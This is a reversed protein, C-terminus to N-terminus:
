RYKDYKEGVHHMFPKLRKPLSLGRFEADCRYCVGMSPVKRYLLWDLLAMVPLSLGHTKPVLVIGTLMILCGLAQNFDKSVYFQNATCIPCAEFAFTASSFQGAKHGCERCIIDGTPIIEIESYKKCSPCKWTISGM